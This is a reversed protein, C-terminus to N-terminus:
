TATSPGSSETQEENQKEEEPKSRGGTGECGLARSELAADSLTLLPSSAEGEERMGQSTSEIERLQSVGAM